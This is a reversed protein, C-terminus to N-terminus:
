LILMCLSIFGSMYCEFPYVQDYACELKCIYYCSLEVGDCTALINKVLLYDEVWIVCIDLARKLSYSIILKLSCM